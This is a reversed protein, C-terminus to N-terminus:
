RNALNSRCALWLEDVVFGPRGYWCRTLWNYGAADFRNLVANGGEVEQNEILRLVADRLLAIGVLRGSDLRYGSRGLHLWSTAYVNQQLQPRGVMVRSGDKIGRLAYRVENMPPRQVIGVIGLEAGDESTLYHLISKRMAPFFAALPFEIGDLLDELYGRSLKEEDQKELEESLDFRYRLADLYVEINTGSLRKWLISQLKRSRLQSMLLTPFLSDSSIAIAGLRDPLEAEPLSALQRARLYDALAEHQLELSVGNVRLAGREILDDILQPELHNHKLLAAATTAQIPADASADALLTLSSEQWVIKSSPNNATHLLGDLWARFLLGLEVPYQGHGKWYEFVLRAVLINECINRLTKPMMSTVFASRQTHGLVLVELDRLEEDSPAALDFRPLPLEPSVSERSFVILQVRPFDRITNSLESQVETRFPIAVRDFADCIIIAGSTRLMQRLTDATEGPSYAVLRQQMFRLLSGMGPEIAPLPILFPLPAEEDTSCKRLAQELIQHSLTSKGFGSPALIIAGRPHASILRDSPLVMKNENGGRDRLTRNITREDKTIRAYEAVVYEKHQVASKVFSKVALRECLTALAKKSLLKEITGRNGIMDAVAIDIVKESERTPQLQWAQLQRGNTLLLLPARLNAAYSEGQEKGDTLAEDPDKAEVVLLSNNRDHPMGNFCVFDAEPKRGRRGERFEVPYKPVIDTKEYGLADLLPVVLQHEVDAENAFTSPPASNWFDSMEGRIIPLIM